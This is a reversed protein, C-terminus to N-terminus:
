INHRATPVAKLREIDIQEGTKEDIGYSGDNIRELAANVEDLQEKLKDIMAQNNVHQSTELADDQPSDASRGGENEHEVMFADTKNFTMIQDKLNAKQKELITKFEQANINM